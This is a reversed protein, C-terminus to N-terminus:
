RLTDLLHVCVVCQAASSNRLKSFQCKLVVAVHGSQVEVTTGTREGQTKQDGGGHEGGM